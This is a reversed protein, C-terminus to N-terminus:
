VRCRSHNHTYLESSPNYFQKWTNIPELNKDTRYAIGTTGWMYPSASIGELKLSPDIYKDNEFESLEFKKLWGADKSTSVYMGSVMVLDFYKGTQSLM